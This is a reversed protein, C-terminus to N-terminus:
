DVSKLAELMDLKKLIHNVFFGLVLLIGVVAICPATYVFLGISPNFMINDPPASNLIIKHLIGGMFIGFGIGILSLIITERYIYMTVEKNLFGLVKVTSLERIREDLNINTLNYLIVLALSLSMVTLVLMVQTLSGTIIDVQSIVNTNQGVGRVGKLNMFRSTVEKINKPSRDKMSVLYSNPQVLKGYVRSYCKSDMFVFHGAYMECIGRVKLNCNKDQSNLKFSDGVKLKLIEALKESVVIGDQGLDLKTSNKRDKLVIYESFDDRPSVMLNIDQPDSKGEVKQSITEAYIPLYGSIDKSRLLKDIAVQEDKTVRDEKSVLADYRIIDKFQRDKVGNISSAIGLGAFLLAVSGAVGFITMLMRQKYRFINRATVKHNFSLGSWVFTLRELFIKSGKSPPKPLLLQSTTEKLEKHAIYVAPVVSCMMSCIFALAVIRWDWYLGISPMTTDALLSTSLIYPIGYMGLISGLLSGSGGAFLGYIAFKKIVDRDTYGLAKLIGANNREENVFRTMTTITVLAAVLYLVLPFVDSVKNIGMSTSQVTKIGDGGPLTRRTYVTYKPLILGNVLDQAHSLDSKADKIEKIAKEKEVIYDQRKSDLEKQGKGIEYWGKDIKSKGAQYQAMGRRYEGEKSSIVSRARDYEAVRAMGSEYEKLGTMYKEYAPQLQSKDGDPGLSESKHDLDKKTADLQAKVSVLKNRAQEVKDKQSDLSAISRDLSLKANKLTKRSSELRYSASKLEAKKQNITNQAKNLSTEGQKLKDEADRIKSKGENIEEEVKSRITDLRARPNDALAKELREKHYDLRKFYDESSSSIKRLDDFRFRAITYTDAKFNDETILCYGDLSGSGVSSNGMASKSIIESSNVFGSITYKSDRLQSKDQDKEVLEIRDGLKYKDMYTSGLAIEGKKDPFRGSLLDFKSIFKPKSFARISSGSKAITADTFYGFELDGNKVLGKLERTDDKDLGYDGIVALDLLRQREFYADSGRDIDPGTVKLGILTMSGLMMLLMISIFRGKCQIFAKVISKNLTKKM